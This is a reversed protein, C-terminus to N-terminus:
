GNFKKIVQRLADVFVEVEDATNYIYFSARATAEIGLSRMLPQACHHGARIAIGMEDLMAAVDHPHVGRVNFSLIGTSKAIHPCYTTTGELKEIEARAKLALTREHQLIHESPWQTIYDAAAGLAVAGAVDPTGAEFRAPPDAWTAGDKWVQRVMEGGAQYPGMQQLLDARGYLVGIGTPGMMKHGSFALFDCDIAQVDIAGLPASQAADVVLIAKADHALEGIKKVDNITGLVNSVHSCCVIRTKPSLLEHLRELHLTHDRDVPVYRLVAKKRGALVQWPLLNSHHEMETVIIEDGENIHAYGWTAAVLNIAETTNRTFVVSNVEAANIFTALKGRAQEYAATAEEGLTHISRHVNANTSKYFHELAQIVAAPKQSTAANDLYVLKRNLISRALIPFDSQISLPDLSKEAAM